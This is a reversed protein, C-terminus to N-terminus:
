LLNKAAAQLREIHSECSIYNIFQFLKSKSIISPILHRRYLGKMFRNSYPQLLLSYETSTESMWTQHLRDLENKKSIISNIEKLSSYFSDLEKENMLRIYTNKQCQIYPIMKIAFGDTKDFDLLLMFGEYWSRQNYFDTDFLFNGLGYFIYKGKYEEYGSYCHQHHNVVVDAGADIFFRYTEQMRPNPYQHHEHGGHVIILVYDAQKKAEQIKYFQRIPNLPNSGATNGTAISFEHECCNLFAMKKGQIDRYLIKSAENLDKGGGVYDIDYKGCQEITKNVGTTGYDFFHNNALTVCDFGVWKLAAIESQSCRLNLGMKEIPLDNEDAVPCELNVIAYDVNSILAQIEEFVTAYEKREFLRSVENQPCYDGAILIKM